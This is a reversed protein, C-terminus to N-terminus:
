QFPGGGELMHREQEINPTPTSRLGRRHEEPEFPGQASEERGAEVPEESEWREERDEREEDGVPARGKALRRGYLQACHEVWAPEVGLRFAVRAPDPRHKGRRGIVSDLDRVVTACPVRQAQLERAVLGLSLAIFLVLLRRRM